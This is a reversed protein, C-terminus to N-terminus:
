RAFELLLPSVTNALQVQDLGDLQHAHIITRLDRVYHQGRESYSLLTGALEHGSVAKGQDRLQQRLQRLDSYAATTNLNHLYAVTGEYVSDFAAVKVRGGYAALFKGSGQSSAHQGFLANGQLAFRSTGWGSENIGQALVLAVPVTDVRQLLEELGSDAVRYLAALEDLWQQQEVTIAQGQRQGHQIAELAKRQAMVQHNAEVINPLLLRIFLSTKEPVPQAALDAPLNIAFIPPVQGTAAVMELQYQNQSLELALEAAGQLSKKEDIGRLPEASLPPLQTMAEGCAALGLFLVVALLHQQIRHINTM